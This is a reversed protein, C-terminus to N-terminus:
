RHRARGHHPLGSCSRCRRGTARAAFTTSARRAARRTSHTLILASVQPDRDRLPDRRPRMDPWGFLILPAGDAPERLPGGHAMIKAPQHELTNLGHQDGAFIQLPAVLRDDVDGDLVDDARRANARDRLLHWAGVAGVVLRHHPLRRAGHPRPPLPLSPNFIMAWWDAPVFQGDANIAYGAPTQMWSNASLIWFASIFTGVAVMLTAIFHLATGVRKMGFLM